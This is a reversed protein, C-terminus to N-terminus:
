PTFYATFGGGGTKDNPKTTALMTKLTAVSSTDPVSFLACIRVTWRVLRASVLKFRSSAFWPLISKINQNREMREFNYKKRAGKRRVIGDHTHLYCNPGITLNPYYLALFHM